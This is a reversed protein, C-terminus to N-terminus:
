FQLYFRDLNINAFFRDCNFFLYIFNISNTFDLNWPVHLAIRSRLIQTKSVSSM